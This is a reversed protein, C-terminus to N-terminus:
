NVKDLNPQLLDNAFFKWIAILFVHQRDHVFTRTECNSAFDFFKFNVSFKLSYYIPLCSAKYVQVRKDVVKFELMKCNM